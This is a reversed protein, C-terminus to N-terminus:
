PGSGIVPPEEFLPTHPVDDSWYGYRCGLVEEIARLDPTDQHIELGWHVAGTVFGFRRMEELREVTVWDTPLPPEDLSEVPHQPQARLREELAASSPRETAIRYNLRANVLAVLVHWDKWGRRILEQYIQMFLPDQALRPITYRLIERSRQYRNRIMTESKETSYGPGPSDRWALAPIADPIPVDRWEPPLRIGQRDTENFRERPIVGALDDYPRASALKHPLGQQYAREIIRKHETWPVLSSEYLIRTLALMLELGVELPDLNSGDGIVPMLDVIWDSGENGPQVRVRERNRTRDRDIAQIRVRITTPLLILDEHALEACVIQAAAAFREAARCHVYTNTARVQWTLGLGAWQILRDAGADAYPVVGLQEVLDERWELASRKKIEGATANLVDSLGSEEQTRRVREALKPDAAEAAARLYAGHLYAATLEEHREPNWPDEEHVVHAMMAVEYSETAACWAGALYDLRGVKMLGAAILDGHADRGHAHALGVAALAHQRGALLLGLHEYCRALMLLALLTGRITDGRWWRFKAEHLEALADLPRQDRLFAVARDRSREAAASNGAVDAVLDDV